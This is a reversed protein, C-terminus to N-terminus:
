FHSANICAPRDFRGFVITNVDALSVLSVQKISNCFIKKQLLCGLRVASTLVIIFKGQYGLFIAWKENISEGELSLIEITLVWHGPWCFVLWHRWWNEGSIPKLPFRQCSLKSKNPNLRLYKKYSDGSFNQWGNRFQCRRITDM